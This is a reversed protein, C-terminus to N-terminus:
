AEELTFEAGHLNVARGKYKPPEAMKCAMAHDREKQTADEPFLSVFVDTRMGTKRAWDTFKPRDSDSLDSLTFTLRRYPEQADSRLTGGATREQTTDERWELGYDWEFNIEPELYRGIFLRSAEFYGDPNGADILTIKFSQAAVAAFWMTSFTHDWGTFMSAGLPDVGWEIDGLAKAPAAVVNGSDYVQTTWAADSYLRVRWTGESTLNHRTIACASIMKAASWTGKIDQTATSTSRAVLSRSPDQLNAVPLTTELAPSASLTADDADNPTIIRINGVSM